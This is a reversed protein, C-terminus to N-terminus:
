TVTLNGAAVFISGGLDLTFQIGKSFLLHGNVYGDFVGYGWIFTGPPIAGWLLDVTNSLVGGTLDAFMPERAYLSGMLEVALPDAVFPNGVLIGAYLETTPISLM